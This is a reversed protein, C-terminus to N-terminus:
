LPTRGRSEMEEAHRAFGHSIQGEKEFDLHQLSDAYPAKTRWYAGCRICTVSSYASPTHHYGNFASHNCRWQSARWLRAPRNSGAPQSLPETKESCQCAKGGSM